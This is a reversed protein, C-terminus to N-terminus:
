RHTEHPGVGIVSTLEAEILAQHIMAGSGASGTPWMPRKPPM